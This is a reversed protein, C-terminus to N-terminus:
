KRKKLLEIVKEIRYDVKSPLSEDYIDIKITGTYFNEPNMAKAVDLSNSSESEYTFEMKDDPVYVEEISDWYYEIYTIFNLRGDFEYEIKDSTKWETGTWYYQYNM